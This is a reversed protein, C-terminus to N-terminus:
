GRQRLGLGTWYGDVGLLGTHVGGYMSTLLEEKVCVDVDVGM